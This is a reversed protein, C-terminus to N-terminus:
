QSPQVVGADTMALVSFGLVLARLSRALEASRDPAPDAIRHLAAGDLLAVVAAAAAPDHVGAARLTARALDRTEQLLGRVHRRLTESRPASLYAEFQAATSEASQERVLGVFGDVAAAPTLGDTELRERFARLRALETEVAHVVAEGVMEELSTFYHTTSALPVGAREAVARHSVGAVGREAVLAITATLLLERRARGRARSGPGASAGSM